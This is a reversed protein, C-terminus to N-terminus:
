GSPEFYKRWISLGALWRAHSERQASEWAEVDLSCCSTVRVWKTDAPQSADSYIIELVEEPITLVLGATPIEVTTEVLRSALDHRTIKGQDYMAMLKQPDTIM